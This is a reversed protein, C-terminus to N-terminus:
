GYSVDDQLSKVVSMGGRKPASFGADGDCKIGAVVAKRVISEEDENEELAGGRM